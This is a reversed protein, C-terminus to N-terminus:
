PQRAPKEAAPPGSTPTAQSTQKTDPKKTDKGVGFDTGGQGDPVLNVVYAVTESESHWISWREVGVKKNDYPVIVEIKVIKREKAKPYFAEDAMAVGGPASVLDHFLVKSAFSQKQVEPTYHLREEAAFTIPSLALIVIALLYKRMINFLKGLM